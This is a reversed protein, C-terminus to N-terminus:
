YNSFLFKKKNEQPSKIKINASKFINAFTKNRWPNWIKKLMKFKLSDEKFSYEMKCEDKEPDWLNKSDPLPMWVCGGDCSIWTFERVIIGNRKLFLKSSSNNENDPFIKTWDEKFKDRVIGWEILQYEDTDKCIWVNESNFNKREWIWHDIFFEFEDKTNIWRKYSLFGFFGVIWVIFWYGIPLDSLKWTILNVWFGLIAGFFFAIFDQSKFLWKKM